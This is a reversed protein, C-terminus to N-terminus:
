VEVMAKFLLRLTKGIQMFPSFMIITQIYFEDIGQILGANIVDIYAEDIQIMLDLYENIDFGDVSIKDM